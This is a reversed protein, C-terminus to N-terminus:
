CPVRKSFDGRPRVRVLVRAAERSGDSATRDVLFTSFSDKGLINILELEVIRLLDALSDSPCARVELFLEFLVTGNVLTPEM